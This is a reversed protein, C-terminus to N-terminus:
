GARSTRVAAFRFLGFAAIFVAIDQFDRWIVYESM